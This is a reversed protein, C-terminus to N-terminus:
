NRKRLLVIGLGFLLITAPEPILTIHSWTDIVPGGPTDDYYLDISFPTDDVWFGTLQGGRYDGALPNYDFGYGYINVTLSEDGYALLYNSITGGRLNVTSHNWADILGVNGGFMNVTGLNRVGLGVVQTSGSLNVTSTDTSIIAELIGGSINVTSFDYATLQSTVMGGTMDVTANSYVGVSVYEDGEQIVGDTFFAITTAHVNCAGFLIIAAAVITIIKTKMAKEKLERKM